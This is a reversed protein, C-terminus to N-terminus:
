LKKPLKIGRQNLYTGKYANRVRNLTTAFIVHAFRVKPRLLIPFRSSNFVELTVTGAFGADIITPPMFLGHRAWTSRLEVFGVLNDPLGIFEMTSLLVQTGPEIVVGKPCREVVYEDKLTDPNSPDILFKSDRKMNHRAVEDTLRLDLGNERIIEKEFPKIVLRKEKILGELDFDSLIMFDLSKDANLILIGGM